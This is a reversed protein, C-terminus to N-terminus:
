RAGGRRLPVVEWDDPVRQNPHLWGLPARESTTEAWAYERGRYLFGREGSPVAIGVLAHAHAESRLLISDIEFHDLLHILLLSKSDCDGWDRSAVLAPPLVGFAHETPLQYPIQQVFELLWRAADLTTWPSGGSGAQPGVTMGAEIRALVPALDAASRELVTSYICTWERGVCDTPIQWRFSEGDVWRFSFREALRAHDAEVARGAALGHAFGLRYHGRTSTRGWDHVAIRADPLGARQGAGEPYRAIGLDRVQPPRARGLGEGLGSVLQVFLMLVMWVVFLVFNRPM